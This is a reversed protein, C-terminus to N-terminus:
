ILKTFIYKQTRLYKNEKENFFRYEKSELNYKTKILHKIISLWPRKIKTPEGVAKIGNFSYYKRIEPILEMIQKQIEENKDLEYLTYETKNELDLIKVIKDVIDEQEKKYLESKLRM